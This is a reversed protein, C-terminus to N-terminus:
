NGAIIEMANKAAIRGSNFGWSLNIGSVNTYSVGDMINGQSEVGVAYLGEILEGETNLVQCRTDVEVGGNTCYAVTTGKVAYYPGEGIINASSVTKGFLSDKGEKCMEDYAYVNNKLIEPEAGIKEAIVELTGKYALEQNIAQDLVAQINSMPIDKGITNYQFSFAMPDYNQGVASTGSKSIEDVQKQSLLVYFYSGQMSHTVSGRTMDYDQVEENMFREGQDNVQLLASTTLLSYPIASDFGNFDTVEAPVGIAHTCITSANYENAGVELMMNLGSGDNQKLGLLSYVAGLKEQQMEENGAFGGTAMIVAKANVTVTSGDYKVAKVGTIKGSEDRILEEATTETLITDVDKVMNEFYGRTEMGMYPLSTYANILQAGGHSVAFFSTDPEIKFGKDVLWDITEGSKSIMKSFLSGKISWNMLEEYHDYYNQKFEEDVGYGQEVQASSNMGMPGASLGGTGGLRASKEILVVKAGLETAQAAATTGSTGGGVVVIDCDYTEESTNKVIERDFGTPDQGAEKIANKIAQIAGNSSATAGTIGDISLSQADIIREPLLEQVDYFIQDLDDVAVTQLIFMPSDTTIIHDENVKKELKIEEIKDESVTVTAVIEGSYGKAFGTYTGPNMNITVNEGDSGQAQAFLDEVAQIIANSTYTAGAIGDVKASKLDFIEVELVEAAKGGIAPTEDPAEIQINTLEDGKFTGTVTITGGFGKAESTFTKEQRQCGFLPVLLFLVLIVAYVKKTSKKM